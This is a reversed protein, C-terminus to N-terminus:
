DCNCLQTAVKIRLRALSLTKKKKKLDLYWEIQLKLGHENQFTM